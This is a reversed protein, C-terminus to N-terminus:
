ASLNRDVVYTPERREKTRGGTSLSPAHRDDIRDIIEVSVRGIGQELDEFLRRLSAYQDQDSV